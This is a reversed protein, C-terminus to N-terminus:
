AMLECMLRVRAKVASLGPYVRFGTAPEESRVVGGKACRSALAVHVGAAAARELAEQLQSNVTGNGTGAVVLGALREHEPGSADLVANVVHAGAGAYNLVIDVRPPSRDLWQALSYSPAAASQLPRFNWRVTGEEVWGRPGADGSEFADVRYTHAKQVHRADHIAGACVVMVGQAQPHLAVSVADLVNQPGDPTAASAPRMACTLVVPKQAVASGLALELFYATEEVTDTGHTIVVGAVAEDQLYRVCAQALARWVAWDMDKSDVQAIQESSMVAGDLRQAMGAIGSLLDAVQVEGARYGVNDAADGARGAITGGTGLVIIKRTAM